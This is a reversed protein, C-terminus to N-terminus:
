KKKRLKAFLRERRSERERYKEPKERKLHELKEVFSVKRVSESLVGLSKLYEMVSIRSIESEKMGLRLCVKKLIQHTQEPLKYRVYGM